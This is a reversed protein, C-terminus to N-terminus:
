TPRNAPAAEQPPTNEEDIFKGSVYKTLDKENRIIVFARHPAGHKVEHRLDHLGNCFFENCISSRMERPLACGCEQHFVCSDAFTKEPIFALYVDVLQGPQLEPRDGMVRRLTEIGLYAHTEGQRCCTGRCAACVAGSLQDLRADDRVAPLPDPLIEVIPLPDPQVLNTAAAEKDLAILEEVLTELKGRFEEIREEPLPTIPNKFETLFTLCYGEPAEVSEAAAQKKRFKTGKRLRKALIIESQRALEALRRERHISQCLHNSCAGEVVRDVTL